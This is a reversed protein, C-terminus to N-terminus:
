EQESLRRGQAMPGRAGEITPRLNVSSSLCVKDWTLGKAKLYSMVQAKDHKDPVLMTDSFARTFQKHLSHQESITRCVKHMEYFIDALISALLVLVAFEVDKQLPKPQAYVDNSMNRDAMNENDHDNDDDDHLTASPEEADEESPPCILTVDDMVADPAKAGPLLLPIHSSRTKLSSLSM